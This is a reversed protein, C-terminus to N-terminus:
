FGCVAKITLALASESARPYNVETPVFSAKYLTVSKKQQFCATSPPSKNILIVCRSMLLWGPHNPTSSIEKIHLTPTLALQFTHGPSPFRARFSEARIFSRTAAHDETMQSYLVQFNCKSSSSLCFFCFLVFLFPILMPIRYSTPFCNQPHPYTTQPLAYRNLTKSVVSVWLYM